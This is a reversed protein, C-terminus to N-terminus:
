AVTHLQAMFGGWLTFLTSITIVSQYFLKMYVFVTVINLSIDMM